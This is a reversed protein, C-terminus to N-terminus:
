QIGMHVRVITGSPGSRIEVADCVERVVWLGLGRGALAARRRGARPDRIEGSDSIQCVIQQHDRWIHLMGPGGTHRVTNAALESVALILDASRLASLGAERARTAVFHRVRQLDTSYNLAEAGSPPPPLPSSESDSPMVAEPYSGAHLSLAHQPHETDQLKSDTM